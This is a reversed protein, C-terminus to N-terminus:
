LKKANCICVKYGPNEELSLQLTEKVLSIIKMGGELFGRHAFGDSVHTLFFLYIPSGTSTNQIRIRFFGSDPCQKKKKLKPDPQVGPSRLDTAISTKNM